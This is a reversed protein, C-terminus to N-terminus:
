DPHAPCQWCTFNDGAPLVKGAALLPLPLPSRPLEPVLRIVSAGAKTAGPPLRVNLATLWWVAGFKAM